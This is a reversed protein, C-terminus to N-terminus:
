RAGGIQAGVPSLIARIIENATQDAREQLQGRAAETERELEDRHQRLRVEAQARAQAAIAYRTRLAQERREEQAKFIAIRAERIRQEYEQTRMEAAAIDSKAREFAGETLRYRQDLVRLLPKYVLFKYAAVTIVLFIITPISNLLLEGLQNLIQNM